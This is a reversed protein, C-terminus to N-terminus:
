LLMLCEGLDMNIATSMKSEELDNSHNTAEHKPSNSMTSKPALKNYLVVLGLLVSLFILATVTASIYTHENTLRYSEVVVLHSIIPNFKNCHFARVTRFVTPLSM